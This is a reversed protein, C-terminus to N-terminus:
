AMKALQSSIDLNGAKIAPIMASIVGALFISIFSYALGPAGWDFAARSEMLAPSLSVLFHSGAFGFVLGLILGCICLGIGEALILGSVRRRSYGLARLVALEGSRSELTSALGSFISLSAIVILLVSLASLSKSGLGLMATLRTMEVAPSAAQLSSERNITQPLNMAAIPSKVALLVATIEAQPSHSADEKHHADQVQNEEDHAHKGHDEHGHDEHDHDEHEHDHNETEYGQEDHHHGDEVHHEEEHMHQGHLDLVSEVSTLILRDLVTGTPKLVGVIRYPNEDHHHGGEMLGHAGSFEMGRSLGTASGAVAEFPQEWISGELLEAGYQQLYDPSTGVIRYGRWNDGLALPIGRKVQPHRMWLKAESYPINGVPLDVHYVSSLILQLPSGKAGIVLDVGHGDSSVRKQVHHSFMLVLLALMFGFAILFVSLINSLARFRLSSVVLALDSM